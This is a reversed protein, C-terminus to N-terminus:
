KQLNCFQTSKGFDEELPNCKQKNHFSCIHSRQSILRRPDLEPLGQKAAVKVLKQFINIKTPQNKEAGKAVM